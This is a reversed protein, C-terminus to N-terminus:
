RCDPIVGDATASAELHLFLLSIGPLSSLGDQSIYTNGVDKILSIAFDCVLTASPYDVEAVKRFEVLIWLLLSVTSSLFALLAITNAARM